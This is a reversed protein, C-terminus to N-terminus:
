DVTRSTRPKEAYLPPGGLQPGRLGRSIINSHHELSAEGSAELTKRQFLNSKYIETSSYKECTFMAMFRQSFMYVILFM